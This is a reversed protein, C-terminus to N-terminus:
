SDDFDNLSRQMRNRIEITKKLEEILQKPLELEEADSTEEMLNRIALLSAYKLSYLPLTIFAAIRSKRLNARLCLKNGIEPYKELIYDKATKPQYYYKDGILLRDKTSYDLAMWPHTKYTDVDVFQDKGLIRYKIYQGKFDIWVLEITRDTKNVFRVYAKQDSAVSRELRYMRRFEMM